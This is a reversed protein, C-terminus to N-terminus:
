VAAYAIYIRRSLRPLPWDRGFWVQATRAMLAYSAFPVGILAVLHHRAAQVLDGHLLYWVMRTPGNIDFLTHWTCPGTPNVALVYGAAAAPGTWVGVVGLRMGTGTSGAM